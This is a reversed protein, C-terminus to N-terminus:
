PRDPFATHERSRLAIGAPCRQRASTHSRHRSQYPPFRSPLDKWRAGPQLVWLIGNLVPRPSLPPWGKGDARRAVVPIM